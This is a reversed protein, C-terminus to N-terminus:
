KNEKNFYSAFSGMFCEFSASFLLHTIGNFSKLQEGKHESFWLFFVKKCNEAM